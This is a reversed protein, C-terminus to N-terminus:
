DDVEEGTDDDDSTTIVDETGFVLVEMDVTEYKKM